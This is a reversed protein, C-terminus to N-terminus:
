SQTRPRAETKRTPAFSKVYCRFESGTLRGLRAFLVLVLGVYHEDQWATFCRARGDKLNSGGFHQGISPSQDIGKMNMAKGNKGESLVHIQAM